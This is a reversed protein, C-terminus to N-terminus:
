RGKREIWPKTGYQSFGRQVNTHVGWGEFELGVRLTHMGNLWHAKLSHVQPLPSHLGQYCLIKLCPIRPDQTCFCLRSTPPPPLIPELHFLKKARYFLGVGRLFASLSRFSVWLLTWLLPKDRKRLDVYSVLRMEVPTISKMIKFIVALKYSTEWTYQVSM